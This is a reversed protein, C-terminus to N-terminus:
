PNEKGASEKEEEEARYRELSDLASQLFALAKLAPEDDVGNRGWLKMLDSVKYRTTDQVNAIQEQRHMRVIKPDDPSVLHWL